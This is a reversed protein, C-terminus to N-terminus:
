FEFGRGRNMASAPQTATTKATSNSTVGVQKAASGGALSWDTIMVPAPLELGVMLSCGMVAGFIVPDMLWFGMTESGIMLVWAMVGVIMVGGAEDGAVMAGGGVVGTMGFDQASAIKGLSQTYDLFSPQPYCGM